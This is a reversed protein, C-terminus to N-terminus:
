PVFFRGRDFLSVSIGAALPTRPWAQRKVEVAGYLSPHLSAIGMLVPKHHQHTESREVWGADKRNAGVRKRRMIPPHVRALMRMQTIDFGALGYAAAVAVPKLARDRRARGCRAIPPPRNQGAI